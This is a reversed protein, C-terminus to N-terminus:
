RNVCCLMANLFFFNFLFGSVRSPLFFQKNYNAVLKNYNVVWNCQSNCIYGKVYQFFALPLRPKGSKSVTWM